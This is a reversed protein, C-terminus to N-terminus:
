RASIEQLVRAMATRDTEAIMYGELAEYLKRGAAASKPGGAARQLFLATVQLDLRGAQRASNIERLRMDQVLARALDSEISSIFREVSGAPGVLRHLHEEVVRRSNGGLVPLFPNIGGPYGDEKPVFDKQVPQIEIGSIAPLWGSVRSFISSGEHSSFFRLFDLAVESHQVGRVLGWGATLGADLETQPGRVYRGFREHQRSPLPLPFARVEFPAQIRFSGADWGGTVVMLARQQVFYLTAEERGQQLFGDQMFRTVDRMIELGSAFESTHFGLEGRLMKAHIDFTSQRMSRLGFGQLVLSQTQSGFLREMLLPSNYRSGYIPVLSRNRQRAWRETEESVQVFEEYTRPVPRDGFIERWLEVNYFVRITFLSTPVGYNEMLTSNYTNPGALGDLFTDRWPIGELVSGENYPNPDDVLDTIPMFFRALIEDNVGSGIAIIQPANGGVLQTRLWTPYIREPVALQEVRVNPHKRMYARSVEDMAERFGPELQWHAFRIITTNPDIEAQTRTVVRVLAIGFCLALLSFGIYNSIREWNM